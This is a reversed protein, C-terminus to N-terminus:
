WDRFSFGFGLTTQNFNYDILSEGYGSTLQVHLRTSKSVTVPAAWDLQIFGRNESFRLNNRLLVDLVQSRDSPEWRLTIDARGIYEEIDANDDQAGNEPVRWWARALVSISESEWGGQVYGRNWSRSGSLDRGNSQHVMGLNFLKLGYPNGTSLTLILEPEYNTERFPSSNGANFAQWNSQQTYAGWLRMGTFGLFPKRIANFVKAKQSLQFKLETNEIDESAAGVPHGPSFPYINSASSRRVILYTGRYPRLPSQADGLLEDDRNDLDWAQTLYSRTVVGDASIKKSLALTDYCTLREGTDAKNSCSELEDSYAVSGALLLMLISCFMPLRNTYPLKCIMKGNFINMSDM